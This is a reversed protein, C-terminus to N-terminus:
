FWFADFYVRCDYWILLQVMLCDINKINFFVSYLIKVDKTKEQGVFWRMRKIVNQCYEDWDDASMESFKM